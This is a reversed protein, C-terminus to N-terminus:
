GTTRNAAEVQCLLHDKTGRLPPCIQPDLREQSSGRGVTGRQNRAGGVERHNVGHGEELGAVGDLVDDVVGQVLLHVDRGLVDNLSHVLAQLLHPLEGGPGHAAGLTLYAVQTVNVLVRVVQLVRVILHQQQVRQEHIQVRTPAGLVAHAVEVLQVRM